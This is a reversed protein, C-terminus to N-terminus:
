VLAVSNEFAILMLSLLACLLSVVVAAFRALVVLERSCFGFNVGWM